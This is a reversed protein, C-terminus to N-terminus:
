ECAAATADLTADVLCARDQPDCGATPYRVAPVIRTPRQQVWVRRADPAGAVCLYLDVCRPSSRRYRLVECVPATPDVPPPSASPRAHVCAILMYLM